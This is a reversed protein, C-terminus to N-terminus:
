QALGSKRLKPAIVVQCYPAHRNRKYYDHHYAEAEFFESAPTVETVVPDKFIGSAALDEISREAAEKQRDDHYFIVSRYQSGVDAGQRNPTTPDHIKWFLNLLDKYAVRDPNFRVRVVEAHGTDGSCVQEYAPNVITGGM